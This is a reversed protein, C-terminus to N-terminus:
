LRRHYISRIHKSFIRPQLLNSLLIRNVSHSDENEHVMGERRGRDEKRLTKEPSADLLVHHVRTVPVLVANDVLHRPVAALVAAQLLAESHSHGFLTLESLASIHVQFLSRCPTPLSLNVTWVLVAHM